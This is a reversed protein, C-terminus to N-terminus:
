AKKCKIFSWLGLPYIPMDFPFLKLDYYRSFEDPNLVDDQVLLNAAFRGLPSAEDEPRPKRNTIKVKKLQQQHHLNGKLLSQLM